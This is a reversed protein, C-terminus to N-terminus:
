CFFPGLCVKEGFMDDALWTYRGYRLRLLCEEPNFELVESGDEAQAHWVLNHQILVLVSARVTRTKLSAYRALQLLNLRGRTLLTFAVKQAIYALRCFRARALM